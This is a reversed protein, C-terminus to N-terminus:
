RDRAPNPDPDPAHISDWLAWRESETPLTYNPNNKLTCTANHQKVIPGYFEPSMIIKKCERCLCGSLFWETDCDGCYRDNLTPEKCRECAMQQKRLSPASNPGWDM